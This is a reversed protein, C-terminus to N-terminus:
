VQVTIAVFLRPLPAGARDTAALAYASWASLTEDRRWFAVLDHGSRGPRPVISYGTVVGLDTVLLSPEGWGRWLVPRNLPRVPRSAAFRGRVLGM